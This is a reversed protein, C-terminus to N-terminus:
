AWRTRGVPEKCYLIRGKMGVAPVVIAEASKELAKGWRQLHPLRTRWVAGSVEWPLGYM